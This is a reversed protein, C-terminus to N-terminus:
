VGQAPGRSVAVSFADLKENRDCVGLVVFGRGKASGCFIAMDFADLKENRRRVGARAVGGRQAKGCCVAVGLADPKEDWGRAGLGLPRFGEAQGREIAVRFADFNDQWHGACAVVVKGREFPGGLELMGIADPQKKGSGMRHIRERFDEGVGKDGPVGVNNSNQEIAVRQEQLPAIKGSALKRSPYFAM